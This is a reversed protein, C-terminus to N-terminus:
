TGATVATSLFTTAALIWSVTCLLVLLPLAVYSMFRQFRLGSEQKWALIVAFTGFATIISVGLLLGPVLWVIQNVNMFTAEVSNLAEEITDLISEVDSVNRKVYGEIVFYQESILDALELLDVGSLQESSTQNQKVNPCFEHFETPTHNLIGIASDTASAITSFATEM